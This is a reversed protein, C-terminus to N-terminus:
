LSVKLTGGVCHCKEYNPVITRMDDTWENQISWIFFLGLRKKNWLGTEVRSRYSISDASAVEEQDSTPRSTYFPLGWLCINESCRLKTPGYELCFHRYSQLPIHLISSFFKSRCLHFLSSRTGQYCTLQDARFKMHGAAPLELTKDLPGISSYKGGKQLQFLSSIKDLTITTMVLNKYPDLAM